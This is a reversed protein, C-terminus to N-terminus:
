CTDSKVPGSGIDKSFILKLSSRLRVAPVLRSQSMRVYILLRVLITGDVQFVVCSWPKSQTKDRTIFYQAGSWYECQSQCHPIVTPSGWSVWGLCDEAKMLCNAKNPENDPFLIDKKLHFTMLTRALMEM